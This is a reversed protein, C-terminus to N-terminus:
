LAIVVARMEQRLTDELCHGYLGLSLNVDKHGLVEMLARPAMKGSEIARTAFTARFAHANFPAIGAVKCIRKIERDVPTALLLGREVVKFVYDDIPSVKGDLLRNYERQEELIQIIQENVPIVRKAAQTKGDAGVAYAGSELRTITREVHILGDYVDSFRIAGIEGIRMGTLVAFRFVNYYYSSKARECSFFSEQEALTLARHHTNRAQEEIIILNKILVCPNYDIVREKCADSFVHKLFAMYDNVTRTKRGNKLSSQVERLIEVDVEKM